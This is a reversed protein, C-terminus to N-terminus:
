AFEYPVRVAAVVRGGAPEIALDALKGYISALLERVRVVAADHPPLPLDLVLLCDNAARQASLTAAGGSTRLVDDLLPLLVGPPFRAHLAEESIDAALAPPRSYGGDLAESAMRRLQVYHQALGIERPVSSSESRLRPLASRLFSALEDLLREARDPDIGYSRRVVDLMEFLLQPDTRAQLGQLRTQVIRRDAARQGAQAAALRLVAQEHRQSRQLHAFFLLAPTVALIFSNLRL